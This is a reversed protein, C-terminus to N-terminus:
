LDVLWMDRDQALYVWEVFGGGGMEQLFLVLITCIYYVIFPISLRSISVRKVRSIGSWYPGCRSGCLGKRSSLPSAAHRQEGSRAGADLTPLAVGRAGRQAQKAHLPVIKVKVRLM